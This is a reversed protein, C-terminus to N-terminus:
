HERTIVADAMALMMARADSPALTMAADKAEAVLRAAVAAAYVLSGTAALSQRVQAAAGDDNAAAELLMLTRGRVSPDAAALHHILPLTAKGKELDKGVSKGVVSELGTLDLLDDQIQFAVGLKRGFTKCAEVAAPGAGSAAAGVECACVILEATKREVIEFYTPEDLSFDARHHLQLLEGACLVASARGVALSFRQSSLSSCLHFSTAILYDGLMVATENGHLRNVTEARRRIDAEDLVDDHVLTAMHVMECVAGLVDHESTILDKSPVLGARPHAAVGCVLVLSPRLMKGRYREIHRCLQEVPPLDTALARDFIQAVRGLGAGILEAVPMLEPPIDLVGKM